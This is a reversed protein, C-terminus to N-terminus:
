FEITSTARLTDGAELGTLDVDLDHRRVDLLAARQRAEEQTLSLADTM